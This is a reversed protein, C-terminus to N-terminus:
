VTVIVMDRIRVIIGVRVRYKDKVSAKVQVRVGVRDRFWNFRLKDRVRVGGKYRFSVRVRVRGRVM